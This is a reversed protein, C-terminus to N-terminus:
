FNESAAVCGELKVDLVGNPTCQEAILRKIREVRAKNAQGHRVPDLANPGILMAVLGIFEDNSLDSLNKGYWHMAGHPFGTVPGNQAEGLYATMLFANLVQQKSATSSLAFKSLLLLELKRLGPTFRDYYFQKALSQTITTLGQGPTSFDIGDNTWFSPDEVRILIELQETTLFEIQPDLTNEFREMLVLTISRAEAIKWSYYSASVLCFALLVVSLWKLFRSM